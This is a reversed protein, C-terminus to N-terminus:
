FRQFLECCAALEAMIDGQPVFELGWFGQFGAETVARVIPAYDIQGGAVPATRGPAEATHLHGIIDLNNLIDGLVDEGMKVMHYIDYLAKVAPSSVGRVVQFGFASRDAHYDIHDQACLMEFLLTVGAAEAAPALQRLGDICNAIGAADDLEERNGSFVIVSPIGNAAATAITERIAPLIEGHAERRNLGRTMGPAGINIVPVGAAKAAAWREPAVMETGTIGMERLTRYYEEPALQERYFCWDPASLRIAPM